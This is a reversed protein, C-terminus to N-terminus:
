TTTTGASATGGGGHLALVRQVREFLETSVLADHRGPYEQGDHEIVGTYYRDALMMWFQSPSVPAPPSSKTGRSRPGAANLRDLVQRASFQGTGYLEFGRTVLPGREPDVAVTRIERGEVHDRVNLYGLPAYSITGGSKAKQGMKYRIDEGSNESQYQDVAHLITEVLSGTPGEGMDLVTSVVRVGHRGMERKTIAADISNRFIRNFHYVIIYDVDKDAKVRALM